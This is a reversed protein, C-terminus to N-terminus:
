SGGFSRCHRLTVPMLDCKENRAVPPANCGDNDSLELARSAQAVLREQDRAVQLDATFPFELAIYHWQEGGCAIRAQRYFLRDGKTVKVAMQVRNAHLATIEEGDAFALTKLHDSLTKGETPSAYFALRATGDPSVHLRGKWKPDPPQLEWNPPPFEQMERSYARSLRSPASNPPVLLHRSAHGWHRYHSYRRHRAAADNASFALLLAILIISRM